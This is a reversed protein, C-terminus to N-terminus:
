LTQEGNVNVARTSPDTSGCPGQANRQQGEGLLAPCTGNDRSIYEVGMVLNLEGGVRLSLFYKLLLGLNVMASCEAALAPEVGCSFSLPM